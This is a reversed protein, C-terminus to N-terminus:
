FRSGDKRRLPLVGQFRGTELREALAAQIRPDTLDALASRDLARFEELTYGFLRCAAPNAYLIAGDEPRTLFAADLGHEVLQVYISESPSRMMTGEVSPSGPRGRPRPSRSTGWGLGACRRVCGMCADPEEAGCCPGRSHRLQATPAILISTSRAARDAEAHM